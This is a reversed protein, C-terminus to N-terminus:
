ETPIVKTTAKPDIEENEVESTPAQSKQPKKKPKEGKATQKELLGELHTQELAAVKRLLMEVNDKCPCECSALDKPDMPLNFTGTLSFLEKQINIVPQNKTKVIWHDLDEKYTGLLVIHNNNFLSEFIILQIEM